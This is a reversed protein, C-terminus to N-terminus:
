RAAEPPAEPAAEPAAEPVARGVARMWGKSENAQVDVNGYGADVLLQRHQALTLYTAGLLAMMPRYLWDMRRGRYAEAVIVFAGGPKLVRRIEKVDALLDPWYYHTEMATVLDFTRAAFPLASVSGHCIQVRGEAIHRANTRTAAAVSTKSYDIGYVRGEPARSALLDVARGGGCGVDLMTFDKEIPIGDLAWETMGRHGRDMGKIILRGPLWSPKRCQRVVIFTAAALLALKILQAAM